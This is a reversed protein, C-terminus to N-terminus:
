VKEFEPRSSDAHLTGLFLQSRWDLFPNAWNLGFPASALWISLFTCNSRLVHSTALVSRYMYQSVCLGDRFICNLNLMRYTALIVPYCYRIIYLMAIIYRYICANYYLQTALGPRATALGLADCHVGLYCWKCTFARMWPSRVCRSQGKKVWFNSTHLM